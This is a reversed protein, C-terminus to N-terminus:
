ERRRICVLTIDDSQLVGDQFKLVDEEIGRIVWRSPHHAVKGAIEILKDMGYFDDQPNIAEVVGDTYLILTDEVGIRQSVAVWAADEAIGLAMGNSNLRQLIDSQRNRILLPPHHGANCYILRGSEPELVGYFATIFMQARADSLMRHNTAHLVAAPNQPYQQAYTLLLTRGLAMYLAAGLGKDAVDAILIGLRGDPLSFFDYFDGSTQRAPKLSAAIDWGPVDPARDPLFSAQIDGALRLEQTVRQHKLTEQYTDAQQLATAIQSALNQLAPTHEELSARDWAQPLTQLEVFLGGMPEGSAPDLIPATLMAFHRDPSGANGKWPLPADELFGQPKKQALLWDWIEPTHSDKGDPYRLLYTEPSLWVVARRCPFMNPIHKHLLNPLNRADTPAAVLDRGFQELGMLQVTQRRSREASRSLQNALLAMLLLGVFYLGLIAPGHEVYIGSALVGFILSIFPLEMSLVTFWFLGITNEYEFKSAQVWVVYIIFPLWVLFYIVAFGLVGLLAPSLASLTLGAIPYSGGLNEFIQLSLLAPVLLAAANLCASRLSNWRMERNIARRLSLALDVLVWLLFIWIITPGFILMAAWLIVVVFDGDSGIMHGDRLAHMMYFRLRSFIAIALLIAASMVWNQTLVRWDSVSILWAVGFVVLPLGYLIGVIDSMLLYRMPASRMNLEPRLKRQLFRLLGIM